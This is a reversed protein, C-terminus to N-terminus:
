THRGTTHRTGLYILRWCEESDLDGDWLRWGAVREKIRLRLFLKLLKFLKGGREVLPDPLVSGNHLYGGVLAAFLYSLALILGASNSLHNLILRDGSHCIEVCAPGLAADRM